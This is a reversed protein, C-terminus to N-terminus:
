CGLIQRIHHMVASLTQFALCLFFGYLPLSSAQNVILCDIVFGHRLSWPREHEMQSGSNGKSLNEEQGACM